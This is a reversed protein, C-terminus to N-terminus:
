GAKEMPVVKGPKQKKFAAANETAQRITKVNLSGLYSETTKADAHGLMKSIAAINLGENQQVTAWSHRSSYSTFPKIKLEKAIEKLDNNIVHVFQNKLQMEREPTIGKQLIPFIYNDGSKGTGYEAVIRKMDETFDIQIKEKKKKTRITKARFYSIINKDTDIDSFKLRCIDKPNMGCSFFSFFWYDKAREFEGTYNYLAAIQEDPLWRKNGTGSPIEYNLFPYDGEFEGNKISRNIVARLGRLYMGISSYSRNQKIMWAEYDKLFKGTIDSLLLGPRFKVLSIKASNYSTATAIRGESKLENIYGDFAAVLTGVDERKQIFLKEFQPFSFIPLKEIIDNAKTEASRIKKYIKKDAESRREATMIKDFDKATLSIGTNYYKRQRQHTVCITISCTKEKQGKKDDAVKKPHWRDCFPRVTAKNM